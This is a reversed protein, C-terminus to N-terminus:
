SEGNAVDAITSTLSESVAGLVGNVFKSSTDNGFEKALEVAEDIAVKQPVDTNYMIEYIAIRLIVLDAKSIKDLPWDPACRSVLEDITQRNAHSGALIAALLELDVQEDTLELQELALQQANNLSIDSFLSCFLTAFAVRRANHRPDAKTRM